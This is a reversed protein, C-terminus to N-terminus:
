EAFPFTDPVETSPRQGAGPLPSVARTQDFWTWADFQRSLAVESYHSQLETDPRYIVGIFRELLPAHLAQHLAPNKEKRLDMLSRAPANDHCLREISDRHSPRVRMLQMEGGWDHAAAVTGTHTGFGLLRVADGFEERCLQGLNHDERIRGMDTHRADGIHSNHAWVIAKAREGHADLLHRLTEFMHTDRLNWSKAGGYYLTRYYREASAVLRASQAADLFREGNEHAYELERGLLDRCQRVAAQECSRYGDSLVARGYTAPDHQWPTLCGYRERAIRAAEPDVDDLYGLVTEISAGMNYLDLGYIGAQQQPERGQNYGRLWVVLQAFERNRWMWGPFRQFASAADGRAPLDRVHRNLHAADPWDAELALVRFGHREILRRTIMARARYFESTGHSCEGLMVIRADAFREYADAFAPDDIQPLPEAATRILRALPAKGGDAARKDRATRRDEGWGEAGVLPVFRVGGLDEEEYQTKGRRTIRRLRQGRTQSGVPVVLRGGVALQERLAEPVKPAGAAVLIADFPAAEPLGRSGDGVALSINSYGLADFRQRAAEALVAHREIAHVHGAIRSMVAAAYGSGAGVELVRDGPQIRAAEIMLAVIYPQSITQQEGIPLPNDEYAFEQMERGVFRERPVERMAELILPDRIGRGAIQTDVMHQRQTPREALPSETQSAARATANGPLAAM